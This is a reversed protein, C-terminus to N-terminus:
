GSSFDVVLPRHDSASRALKTHVVRAQRVFFPGRAFVKDLSGLHVGFRPFTCSALDFAITWLRFGRLGLMGDGLTNRWDNSDGVIMTPLHSSEQFLHHGLLHEVQWHREREGLGLHVHVVHLPGEPTDVM